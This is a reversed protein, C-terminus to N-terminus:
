LPKCATMNSTHFFGTNLYQLVATMLVNECVPEFLTSDKASATMVQGANINFLSGSTNMNHTKM